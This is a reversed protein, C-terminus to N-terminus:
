ASIAGYEREAEELANKAEHYQKYALDMNPKLRKLMEIRGQLQEIQAQRQRTRAKDQTGLQSEEILKGDKSMWLGPYTKKPIDESTGISVKSIQEELQEVQADIGKTQRELTEIRQGVENKRARLQAVRQQGISRLQSNVKEESLPYGKQLDDTLQRVTALTRTAINQDSALQKELDGRIEALPRTDAVLPTSLPTTIRSVTPVPKAWREFFWLKQPNNQFVNLKDAVAVGTGIAGLIALNTLLGM